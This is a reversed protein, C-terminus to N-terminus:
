LDMVAACAAVIYDAVRYMPDDRMESGGLRIGLAEWGETVLDLSAKGTLCIALVVPFHGPAPLDSQSSESAAAAAAAADDVDEDTGGSVVLATVRFAEVHSARRNTAPCSTAEQEELAPAASSPGEGGTFVPLATINLGLEDANPAEGGSGGGAGGATKVRRRQLWQSAAHAAHAAASSSTTTTTASSAASASSSASTSATMTPSCAVGIMQANTTGTLPPSDFPVDRTEYVPRREDISKAKSLLQLPPSPLLKHERQQPIHPQHVHVHGHGSFPVFTVRLYRRHRRSRGITAGLPILMTLADEPVSELGILAAPSAGSHAPQPAVPPQVMTPLSPPLVAPPLWTGAGIPTLHRASTTTSATLSSQQLTSGTGMGIGLGLGQRRQSKGANLVLEEDSASGRRGYLRPSSSGHPYVQSLAVNSSGGAVNGSIKRRLWEGLKGASAPNKRHSPRSSSSPLPPMPKDIPVTAPRPRAADQEAQAPSPTDLVPTAPSSSPTPPVTTTKIRPAMVTDVSLSLPAEKDETEEEGTVGLEQSGLSAKRGHQVSSRRRHQQVGASSSSGSGITAADILGSTVLSQVLQQERDPLEDYRNLAGYKLAPRSRARRLTLTSASGSASRQQQGHAAQTPTQSTDATQPRGLSSRRRRHRPTPLDAEAYVARLTSPSALVISPKSLGDRLCRLEFHALGSFAAPPKHAQAPAIISSSSPFSVPREVSNSPTSRDSVVITRMASAEDCPHVPASVWKRKAQTTRATMWSSTMGGDDHAAAPALLTGQWDDRHGVDISHQGMEDVSMLDLVRLACHPRPELSSTGSPHSCCDPECDLSSRMYPSLLSTQQSWPAPAPGLSAFGGLVQHPAVALDPSSSATAPRRQWMSKTKFHQSFPSAPAVLGSRPPSSSSARPELMVESPLIENTALCNSRLHAVFSDQAMDAPKAKGGFFKRQRPSVQAPHRLTSPGGLDLGELDLRLSERRQREQMDIATGHPDSIAISDMM